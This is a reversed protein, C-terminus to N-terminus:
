LYSCSVKNMLYILTVYSWSMSCHIFRFWNVLYDSYILLKALGKFVNYHGVYRTIWKGKKCFRVVWKMPSIKIYVKYREKFEVDRRRHAAYSKKQSYSIILGNGVIHFKNLRIFLNPVWFSSEGVEFWRIPSKCRRGYLAKFPTIYISSRYSNNNSFQVLSM